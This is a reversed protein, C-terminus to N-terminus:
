GGFCAVGDTVGDVIAPVRHWVVVTAHVVDDWVGAFFAEADEAAVELGNCLLKNLLRIAGARDPKKTHQHSEMAVFGKYPHQKRCGRANSPNCFKSHPPRQAPKALLAGVFSRCLFAQVM